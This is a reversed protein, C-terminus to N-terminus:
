GSFARIEGDPEYRTVKAGPGGRSAALSVLRRVTAVGNEGSRVILYDFRKGSETLQAPWGRRRNEAALSDDDDTVPLLVVQVPERPKPLRQPARAAIARLRRLQAMREGFVHDNAWGYIRLNLEDLERLSVTRKPPAAFAPGNAPPRILLMADRSLPVTVEAAPSSHWGHGSWPFEPNPDHMALDHDSTVFSRGKPPKLLTWRSRFILQALFASTQLTMEFGKFRPEAFEVSGDELGALLRLRTRELENEPTLDGHKRSDQLFAERSALVGTMLLRMTTSSLQSSAANGSPTRGDVLALFLSLSARDVESTTGTADGLKKIIPACHSEVVGLFGELDGVDGAAAKPLDYFRRRSGATAPDAMVTTGTRVSLQAVRSGAGDVFGALLFRPIFHHRKARPRPWPKEGLGIAEIERWLPSAKFVEEVERATRFRTVGVAWYAVQGFGAGTRRVAVVFRGSGASVGKSAETLAGPEGRTHM